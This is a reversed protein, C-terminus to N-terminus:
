TPRKTYRLVVSGSNLVKSDVFQLMNQLSYGELLRRGDGVLLPQIVFIYEDILGLKMLQSPLDVGGMLINKGKQQKLKWVEEQLNDKVIVTRPDDVSHLTRSFVVIKEVANFAHAFDNLDKTAGSNSIAMDPWFPVMLEYTKRGYLFTDAERILQLHFNHLHEDAVGKTHDCCGDLTLNIAYILKRM